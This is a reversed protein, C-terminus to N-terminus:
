ELSNGKFAGGGAGPALFETIAGSAPDIPVLWGETLSGLYLAGRGDASIGEPGYGPNPLALQDLM